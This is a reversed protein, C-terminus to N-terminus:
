GRRRRTRLAVSVARTWRQRWIRDLGSRARGRRSSAPTQVAVIRRPGVDATARPGRATLALARTRTTMRSGQARSRTSAAPSRARPRLARVTHACLRCRPDRRELSRLGQDSDLEVALLRRRLARPARAHQGMRRAQNPNWDSATPAHGYRREFEGIAEIIRARTWRARESARGGSRACVVARRGQCARRVREDCDVCVGGYRQKRARLKSGDPDDLWAFVTQAVVGMEAAIERLLWGRERLERARAVRGSRGAAREEGGSGVPQEIAAMVARISVGVGSPCRTSWADRAARTM